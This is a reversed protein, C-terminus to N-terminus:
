RVIVTPAALRALLGHSVSGLMLRAVGSRGHSGVVVLTGREAETALALTADGDFCVPQVTLKPYEARVEELANELTDAADRSLDDYFSASDIFEAGPVVPLTWAHVAILPQGTRAAEAAAFQLAHASNESGDVGVVIGSRGTLDMDPIVAVPSDSAAAIRLAEVARRSPSGRQQWDSGVVLLEYDNSLETFVRMPDGQEISSTVELAPAATRVTATAEALVQEGRTSAAQLLETKRSKVISEDIVHIIHLGLGRGSAQDIAFRLARGSAEASDVVNVLVRGAM